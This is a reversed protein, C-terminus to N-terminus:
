LELIIEIIMILDTINVINDINIDSTCLNININNELIYDVILIIDTVNVNDDFNVDGNAGLGGCVGCEDTYNDCNAECDFGNEPYICSANFPIINEEFNCASEEVCGRYQYIYASGADYGMDDDLQSGAILQNNFISVSSGFEDYEGSDEPIFKLEYVIENDILEYVYVAGSNTGNDDNLSGVAIFNEYIAISQGFNDNLYEDFANIKIDFEFINEDTLEYVYVSGSNDYINDAYYSGVILRNYFIEVENGFYDNASADSSFIKQTEIWSNGDFIFVSVSGVNEEGNDDAYSGVAIINNYISSSKGFHDEAEQYISNIKDEFVWDTGNFFYIYVSGSNEGYDDDYVSGVIIRNEFLDVSYGFRDYADGDEPNIKASEIWDLGNYYFVYVSGSKEGNEDDYISSVVLWDDSIVLSKGFYENYDGDNPIIKYEDLEGYGNEKYVYVSGSNQGNDDDRNAGVVFWEACNSVARGFSDGSEADSAFVKSESYVSGILLLLIYIKKIMM